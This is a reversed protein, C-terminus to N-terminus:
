PREGPQPLRPLALSPSGLMQSATAGADVPVRQDRVFWWWLGVLVALKIVLVVALKRVLTRDQLNM